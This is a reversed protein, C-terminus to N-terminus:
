LFFFFFVRQQLAAAERRNKATMPLRHGHTDLRPGTMNFWKRATSFSSRGIIADTAKQVHVDGDDNKTDDDCTVTALSSSSSSSELSDHHRTVSPLSVSFNSLLNYIPLFSFPNAHRDTLEDVGAMVSATADRKTTHCQNGTAQAHLPYINVATTVKNLALKILRWNKSTPTMSTTAM